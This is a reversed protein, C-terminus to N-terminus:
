GKVRGTKMLFQSWYTRMKRVAKEGISSVVLLPYHYHKAEHKAHLRTCHNSRKVPIFGKIRVPM